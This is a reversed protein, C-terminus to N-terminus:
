FSIMNIWLIYVYSTLNNTIILFILLTMEHKMVVLRRKKLRVVLISIIIQDTCISMGLTMKAVALNIEVQNKLSEEMM